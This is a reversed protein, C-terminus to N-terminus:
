LKSEIMPNEPDARGDALATQRDRDIDAKTTECNYTRNNWKREKWFRTGTQAGVYRMFDPTNLIM